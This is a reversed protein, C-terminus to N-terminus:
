RRLCHRESLHPRATIQDLTRGTPVDVLAQAVSCEMDAFSKRKVVLHEGGM